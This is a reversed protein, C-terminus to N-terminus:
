AATAIRDSNDSADLEHAEAAQVRRRLQAPLVAVLTSVTVLIGGVWIWRITPNYVFTM